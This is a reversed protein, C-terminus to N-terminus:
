QTIVTEAPRGIAARGFIYFQWAPNLNKFFQEAFQDVKGITTQPVYVIDSPALYVIEMNKGKLTAKVDVKRAIYNGDGSKRMLIVDDKRGAPTFDGAQAIADMVSVNGALAYVGPDQVQGFVFFRQDAFETVMVSVEPEALVDSYRARILSDLEAPRMGAARVEGLLPITVMGDPRVVAGFNYTPYYFFRISLKDGVVMQYPEPQPFRWSQDEGGPSTSSIDTEPVGKPGGCGSGLAVLVLCLMLLRTV